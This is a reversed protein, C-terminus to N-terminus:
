LERMVRRVLYCRMCWASFIQLLLYGIAIMGYSKMFIIIDAVGMERVIFLRVMFIFSCIYSLALPLNLVTLLEKGVGKKLEKRHMGMSNLFEYKRKFLSLDSSSKMGMIFISGVYLLMMVFVNITIKLINEAKKQDKIMPSEYLIKERGFKSENAIGYNKVYQELERSFKMQNEKPINMLILSNPEEKDKSISQWSEKFFDNSFIYVHDSWGAGFYGFVPERRIEKVVYDTSFKDFAEPHIEIELKDTRKGIHIPYVEKDSKYYQEMAATEQVRGQTVFVVEKEDLSVINGTIREYIEQSIGFHQEGYFITVRVVPVAVEKGDYKAALKKAFEEDETRAFWVYDYPYWQDYPAVPINDTVQVILDGLSFMQIAFLLFVLMLNSNFHHYFQNIELIKKYYLHTKKKICELFANGGFILILFIAAACGILSVEGSSNFGEYSPRGFCIISVVFLGFGAVSGIIQFKGYNRREKLDSSSLFSSIGKEEIAICSVIIAFSIIIASIIFTYGYTKVTIAASYVSDSYFRAVIHKFLTAIVHGASMGLIVSGLWGLSIEIIIACLIMKKRMGLLLFLVYDKLRTKAYYRVSFLMLVVNIIVIVSVALIVYKLLYDGLLGDGSWSWLIDKVSLIAFIMSVSLIESFFFLLYNRFNSKFNKVIVKYIM